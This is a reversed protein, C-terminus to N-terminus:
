SRAGLAENHRGAALSSEHSDLVRAGVRNVAGTLIERVIRQEGGVERQEGEAGCAAVAGICFAAVVEVNEGGCDHRRARAGFAVVLVRDRRHQRLAAAVAEGGRREQPQEDEILLDERLVLAQSRRDAQEIANELRAYVPAGPNGDLVLRELLARLESVRDGLMLLRQLRVDVRQAREVGQCREALLQALEELLLDSLDRHARESRADRNLRQVLHQRRHLGDNLRSVVLDKLASAADARQRWREACAASM